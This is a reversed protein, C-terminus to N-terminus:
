PNPNESQINTKDAEKERVEKAIEKTPACWESKQDNDEYAQLVDYMMAPQEICFFEKTDDAQENGKKGYPMM